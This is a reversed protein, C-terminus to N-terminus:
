QDAFCGGAVHRLDKREVPIRADFRLRREWRFFSLLVECDEPSVGAVTDKHGDEFALKNSGIFQEDHVVKGLMPPRGADHLIHGDGRLMLAATNPSRHHLMRAPLTVFGAAVLQRKRAPQSTGIGMGEVVGQSKLPVSETEAGSEISPLARHPCKRPFM